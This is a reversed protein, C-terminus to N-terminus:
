GLEMKDDLWGDVEEKRWCAETGGALGLQHQSPRAGGREALFERQGFCGGGQEEKAKSSGLGNIGHLAM